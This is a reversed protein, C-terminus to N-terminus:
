QSKAFTYNKINDYTAFNIQLVTVAVTLLCERFLFFFFFIFFPRDDVINSIRKNQDIAYSNEANIGNMKDAM